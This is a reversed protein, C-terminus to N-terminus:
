KKSGGFIGNFATRSAKPLLRMFRGSENSSREVTSELRGNESGFSYLTDRALVRRSKRKEEKVQKQYEEEDMPPFEVMLASTVTDMQNRNIRAIVDLCSKSDGSLMESLNNSRVTGGQQSSTWTPYDGVMASSITSPTQRIDSNSKSQRVIRLRESTPTTPTGAVSASRSLQGNTQEPVQPAEEVRDGVFVDLPAVGRQMGGFKAGLERIGHTLRRNQRRKPFSDMKSNEPRNGNVEMLSPRETSVSMRSNNVLAAPPVLSQTFRRAVSFVTNKKNFTPQIPSRNAALQAAKREEARQTAGAVVPRAESDCPLLDVPRKGEGSLLLPDAGKDLLYKIVSIDANLSCALHLPGLGTQSDKWDVSAGNLVLLEAIELRSESVIGEELVWSVQPYGFLAVLLPAEREDGIVSAGAGIAGLVKIIQNDAIAVYLQVTAPEIYKHDVYKAVIYRYRDDRSSEPGPKEKGVPDFVLSNGQNGIRQMMQVTTPTFSNVDLTLSRVKSVHTGLSRHIGSCEICILVALNLSCWEPKPSGCDACVRNAESVLYLDRVLGQPEEQSARQQLSASSSSLTAMSEYGSIQSMRAAWRDGDDRSTVEMGNNQLLSAEIARRLVTVWAQMDQEGIAQFVAFSAPTIIEFCFRRKAKGDCTKVTATSLRLSNGKTEMGETGYRWGSFRQFRGQEVVCWYRRWVTGSTSNSIRAFLFGKRTDGEPTDAPQVASLRLSNLPRKDLSIRVYEEGEDSVPSSNGLHERVGGNSGLGMLSQYEELERQQRGIEARVVEVTERGPLLGLQSDNRQQSVQQIWGLTSIFMGAEAQTVAERLIVFYRWRERDFARQHEGFQADRRQDDKGSRTKLYRNLERDFQDSAQDFQQKHQELLKYTTEYVGRAHGLVKTDWQYCLTHLEQDIQRQMGDVVSRALPALVPLHDLTHFQSLFGTLSDKLAPQRIFEKYRARHALAETELLKVTTRFEPGDQSSWADLASRPQQLETFIHTPPLPLVGSTTFKSSDVSLTLQVNNVKIEVLPEQQSFSWESVWGDDSELLALKQDNVSVDSPEIATLQLQLSHHPQYHPVLGLESAYTQSNICLAASHPHHPRLLVPSDTTWLGQQYQYNDQHLKDIVVSLLINAM